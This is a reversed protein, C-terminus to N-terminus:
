DKLPYIGANNVLVDPEKGELKGWLGDIEEKKGLNVKFVSVDRGFKSLDRQATELKEGEIDVLQLDAGAEAFRYAIAKGIGSASGTILGAKGNLSILDALPKLRKEEMGLM